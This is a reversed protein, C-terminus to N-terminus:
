VDTGMEKDKRKAKAKTEKREKVEPNDVEDLASLRKAPLPPPVAENSGISNSLSQEKQPAVKETGEAQKATGAGLCLNATKLEEKEYGNARKPYM